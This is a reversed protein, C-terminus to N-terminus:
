FTSAMAFPHGPSFRRDDDPKTADRQHQSGQELMILTDTKLTGDGHLIQRDEDETLALPGQIGKKEWKVM